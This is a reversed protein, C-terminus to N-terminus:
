KEGGAVQKRGEDSIAWTGRPVDKEMWGREIMKLRVFQIRNEWRIGGSNLAERDVDTLRGALKKGVAEVVDRSAASGGADMLAELLPIEYEEEALISGAPVRARGVAKKKRSGGKKSSSRTNPAKAVQPHPARSAPSAPTVGGSVDLQSKGNPTSGDLELLRRLVSNPTDVFPEAAEKLRDYVEDDIEITQNM